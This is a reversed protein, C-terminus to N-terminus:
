DICIHEGTNSVTNKVGYRKLFDDVVLNLNPSLKAKSRDNILDLLLRVPYMGEAM